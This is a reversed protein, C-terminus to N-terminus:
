PRMEGRLVEERRVGEKNIQKMAVRRGSEAARAEFVLGFAGEGLLRGIEYKKLLPRCCPSLVNYCSEVCM